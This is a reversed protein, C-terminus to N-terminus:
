GNPYILEAEALVQSRIRHNLFRPPVLDVSRGGLLASLEDEITIIGLGPHHGREFEVLVDIDSDPGFDGRLVSGFLALSSIHHRRCFAEIEERPIHIATNTMPTQETRHDSM